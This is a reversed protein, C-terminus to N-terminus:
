NAHQRIQNLLISDGPGVQKGLIDEISNVLSAIGQADANINELGNRATKHTLGKPYPKGAFRDRFFFLVSPVSTVESVLHGSLQDTYEQFVVNAGHKVWNKACSFTDSFNVAEDHLGHFMYIPATPTKDDQPLVAPAARPTSPSSERSVQANPPSPALLGSSFFSSYGLTAAM